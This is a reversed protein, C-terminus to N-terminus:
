ASSPMRSLTADRPSPSTYLLCGKYIYTGMAAISSLTQLIGDLTSNTSEYDFSGPFDPHEYKVTYLKTLPQDLRFIYFFLCPGSVLLPLVEQFEIQGGTNTLYLSWSENFHEQLASLGRERLAKMFIDRPQIIQQVRKHAYVSHLNSQSIISQVKINVDSETVIDGAETFSDGETQPTELESVSKQPQLLDPKNSSELHTKQVREHDPQNTTSVMVKIVEADYDMISWYSGKVKAATTVSKKVKVPIANEAVGSSPSVIPLKEGVLRKMTSDKGSRAPGIFVGHVITHNLDGGKKMADLVAKVHMEEQFYFSLNSATEALGSRNLASKLMELTSSGRSDGPAWQLWESLMAQLWSQPAGNLLLPNEAINESEGPLFGLHTGIERWKPAHPILASVLASLHDETLQVENQDDLWLLQFPTLEGVSRRNLTCTWYGIELDATAIHVDGRGCRCLLAPIPSSDYYDLNLTAKHIGKFIAKRVLPFIKPCLDSAFEVPVDVHVEFHAYADILTVITPSQPLEFQICNRYLCIPTRINDTLISWPAPSDNESSVLWCLLSCFIGKRPGGDPFEIILSPVTSTSPIRYKEVDEKDLDQLLAPVFLQADNFTAFILLKQFLQILDEVEFLGPVYHKSFVDQSLFKVTVLAYEYFNRWDESLAKSKFGIQAIVLETVKDLLVQPDAFVVGPLINPYHLLVSLEDLYQIAADFEAADKEFHLKDVATTFCEHRSLVGRQLAKAMEELLIELAFWKLPIDAAPISSEGLLVEHIQEIIDQEHRGPNAANIPFIVEKTSINHYIIQKDLTPLLIKLVKKNKEERTEKSRKEEDLHTGLIMIQPCEDESGSSSRHSHMSRACHQLLQEITQASIFPTGVPKGDVYFEVVPRSSFEDCLRFVFIYFSLRRLFIPLIEHFQPQGGSDIIQLMRFVTVPDATTSIQGMLEVLEKDTAISELINDVESESDEDRELSRSVSPLREAIALPSRGDISAPPKSLDPSTQDNSRVQPEAATSIPENTSNTAENSRTALLHNVLDPAVNNLVRALFMKREEFTTFKSWEKGELNVRYVTTPRMALPTSVRDKPPKNGIIIEKSTTKGSGAAGYMLLKCLWAKIHGHKMAEEFQRNNEATGTHIHIHM